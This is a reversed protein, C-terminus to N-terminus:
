NFGAKRLKEFRRVLEEPNKFPCKHRWSELTFDPNIRLTEAAEARADDYQELASYSAALLIHSPWFDPNRTLSEKLIEIAEEYKKTLLYAHGLNWLYLPPYKPNLHMAQRIVKIAEEPRDAWLLVGGLGALWDANNPDLSIAKKLEAIAQEHKKQWLYINGMLQHPEPLSYDIDMAMQAMEFSLEITSADQSWGLNWEALHTQGLMSYALAYQPDINVAKQFMKRALKNSKNTFRYFYDLGKLFNDYAETNCTTQCKCGRRKKEDETLKVALISVIKQTVEDQLAFINQFNRDYREAWLHGGTTADVLQASIRVSEGAKRVSGELIYHVGLERGVEEVKMAKGKYTFVSNRAIVFLASIKSLDTILDETIGDSFYEQEPDGSMNTFPLVAISPKQPLKPKKELDPINSNLETEIRYVRVPESINKVTHDGLYEYVFNLKNKVQDYVNRAICIGGGEALGELRSAINVGDGYIRGEDHIVDGLNVGIRFEMRRDKPLQSNQDEVAEQIKVACEVSDVVSEFEALINDGPSDVVRGNYKQALSAVVKRYKKLTNVTAYEDQEMLRSYGKVDASLIAILKRKAREQTV